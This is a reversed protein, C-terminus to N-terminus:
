HQAQGRGAPAVRGVIEGHGRRTMLEHAAFAIVGVAMAGSIPITMALALIRSWRVAELSFVLYHPQQALLAPTFLTLGRRWGLSALALVAALTLAANGYASVPNGAFREFTMAVIERSELFTGWPLAAFTALAAVGAFLLQRWRWAALLLPASYPKALPAVWGISSLLVAALTLDPSAGLWGEVVPLLIVTWIPLHLKKIVFVVSLTNAIVWFAVAVHEGFPILPVNLLLTPPWGAFPVGRYATTWPNGGDLWADTARFYIHADLFLNGADDTLYFGGIWYGSIVITTGFLV